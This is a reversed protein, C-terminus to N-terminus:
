AAASRVRACRRRYRARSRCVRAPASVPRRGFRRRSRCPSRAARRSNRFRGSQANASRIMAARAAVAAARYSWRLFKHDFAQDCLERMDFDDRRLRFLRRCEELVHQTQFFGAAGTLGHIESAPALEKMMRQLERFTGGRGDSVGAPARLPRLFELKADLPQVGAAGAEAPLLRDGTVAGGIAEMRRAALQVLHEPFRLAVPRRGFECRADGVPRLAVDGATGARAPDIVDREIGVIRKAIRVPELFREAEAEHFEGLEIVGVDHYRSEHRRRRHRVVEPQHEIGDIAGALEAADPSAGIM